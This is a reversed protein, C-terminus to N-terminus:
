TFMQNSGSAEQNKKFKDIYYNRSFANINIADSIFKVVDGATEFGRSTYVQEEKSENIENFLKIHICEYILDIIGKDHGWDHTLFSKTSKDDARNIIEPTKSSYSVTFLNNNKLLQSSTKVTCYYLGLGFKITVEFEQNRLHEEIEDVPEIKFTVKSAYVKRNKKDPIFRKDTNIFYDLTLSPLPEEIGPVDQTKFDTLKYHNEEEIKKKLGATLERMM